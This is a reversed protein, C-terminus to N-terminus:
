DERYNIKFNDLNIELGPMAAETKVGTEDEIIKAQDIPNARLMQYSYHTIFSTKPKIQNLIEIVGDVSMHYPVREFGRPDMVNFILVDCKDYEKEQNEYYAGDGLYGLTKSGQIVFGVCPDYHRCEVAKVKLSGVETHEGPEIPVLKHPIAQQWKGICPYYKDSEMLCHEEAVLFSPDNKGLATVAVNADGSHDQHLHSVFVGNLNLLNVDHIKANILTGPGPDILFNLDDLEVYISNTPVLQAIMGIDGAGIGLFKIRNM